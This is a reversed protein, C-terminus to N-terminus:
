SVLEQWMPMEKNDTNSDSDPVTPTIHSSKGFLVLCVDLQLSQLGTSPRSLLLDSLRCANRSVVTTQFIFLTYKAGEIYSLNTYLCPIQKLIIEEEKRERNYPMLSHMTVRLIFNFMRAATRTKKPAGKGRAKVSDMTLWHARYRSTSSTSTSMSWDIRRLRTM